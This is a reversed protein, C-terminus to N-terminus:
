ELMGKKTYTKRSKTKGTQQVKDEEQKRKRGVQKDGDTSEQSTSHRKQKEDKEYARKMMGVRNSRLSLENQCYTQISAIFFSALLIVRSLLM